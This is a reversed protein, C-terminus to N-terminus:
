KSPTSTSFLITPWPALSFTPSIPTKLPPCPLLILPSRVTSRTKRSFKTSSPYETYKTYM